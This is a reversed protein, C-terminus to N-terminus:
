SSTQLLAETPRYRKVALATSSKPALASEAATGREMPAGNFSRNVLRMSSAPSGARAVPDVTAAPLSGPSGSEMESRGVELVTQHLQVAGTLPAILTTAVM